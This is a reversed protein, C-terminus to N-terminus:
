IKSQLNVCSQPLFNVKKRCSILLGPTMWPDHSWKRKKQNIMVEPFAIDKAENLIAFFNSFASEPEKELIVSSWSHSGLLKEFADSTESNIKRTTYPKCGDNQPPSYESYFTPFHDVTTNLIIGAIHNKTNSRVFIHDILTATQHSIRTPRTIIPLFKNTFM